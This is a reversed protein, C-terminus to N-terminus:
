DDWGFSFGGGSAFTIFQELQSTATANVQVFAAMDDGERILLGTPKQWETFRGGKIAAVALRLAICLETADVDSVRKVDGWGRPEYSPDFGREYDPNGAATRDDRIAGLPVWGFRQAISLLSEWAAASCDYMELTKDEMRGRNMEVVFTM